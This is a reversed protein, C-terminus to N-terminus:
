KPSSHKEKKLKKNRLCVKKFNNMLEYFIDQLKDFIFDSQIKSHVENDQEMFYLKAIEEKGNEEKSGSDDCDSCSAIM